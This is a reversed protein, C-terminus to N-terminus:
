KDTGELGKSWVRVLDEAADNDGSRARLTLEKMRRDKVGARTSEMGFFDTLLVQDADLGHVAQRLREGISSQKPGDRMVIINMWELSGVVLPRHSTVIFQLNSLEKALTPLVTMQWKPHLHLDIEDVMVIGRNEVLKRGQPCTMCVHYLLDGLWGFFARYGDSLAPYAVELGKKAFLYEGSSDREGTFEYHNGAMIRNILHVVQTYRGKNSAQLEPLWANLPVLSHSEDFLGMVRQARVLSRSRRASPDFRERTEMRRTAGYGTFFFAWKEESYIPDGTNLTLM